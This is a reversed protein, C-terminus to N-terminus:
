SGEGEEYVTISAISASSGTTAQWQSSYNLYYKDNSSNLNYMQTGSLTFASRDGPSDLLEIINSQSKRSAYKGGNAFDFDGKSTSIATTATWELSAAETSTLTLTSGSVKGSISYAAVANNNNQLANNGHVIVYKKGSTFSTVKTYTKDTSPTPTSGGELKYLQITETSTSGFGFKSSSYQFYNNSGGSRQCNITVNGNGSFLAYYQNKNSINSDFLIDTDGYKYVYKGSTTKIEYKDGGLNSKSVTLEYAKLDNSLIKGESIAVSVKYNTQNYAFAVNASEKVFLYTGSWDSPATTVKTYTTVKSPDVVNLTFRAEGAKYDDTEACEAKITTKGEGVITVLGTSSVTAVGEASSSYTVGGTTIGSLNNTFPTDDVKKQVSPEAFALNRKAKGTASGELLYLELNTSSSSYTFKSSGYNLYYESSRDAKNKVTVTGSSITVTQAYKEDVASAFDLYPASGSKTYLYGKSTKFYFKGASPAETIEIAAKDVDASSLIKSDSPTVQQRYDSTQNADFAYYKGSGSNYAVVLYTGEVVENGTVKVYYKDPSQSNSVKLTYSVEAAQYEATGVAKATIVTSGKTLPTVAGSSADVTAVSEDSSSYSVTTKDGSLSPLDTTYASTGLDYEATNGSFALEQPKRTTFFAVKVSPKTTNIVWADSSIYAYYTSASSSYISINWFNEADNDWMTYKMDVDTAAHIGLNSTGSIRSLYKGDNTLHYAGYKLLDSSTEAVATWLMSSADELTIQDSEVSVAEAAVAGEKNALAKGESVIIYDYGPEVVSTKYYTAAVSPVIVNITYFASGENYKTGGVEGEEATATIIVTGGKTGTFTVDGTAADVTAIDEASSSYSVTTHLGTLEPKTFDGEGYTYDFETQSFELTQDVPISSDTITLTYSITTEDYNLAATATASIEVEGVAIPTVILAGDEGKAVTAIEENGSSFTVEAGGVAGLFVPSVYDDDSALDYGDAHIEKEGKYFMLPQKCIEKRTCVGEKPTMDMAINTFTGKNFTTNANLTKTYIYKDTEVVVQTVHKKGTSSIFNAYTTGSVKTNNFVMKLTKSGGTFNATRNEFDIDFYGASGTLEDDSTITVSKIYTGEINTIALRSAAAARQFSFDVNKESLSSASVFAKGILFDAAPDIWSDSQPYQVAPIFYRNDSNKQAVIGTYTYTNGLSAKTEPEVIISNYFGATLTASEYPEETEITVDEGELINGDVNNTEFLHINKADTHIWTHILKLQVGTRSINELTVDDEAHANFKMTRVEDKESQPVLVAERDCSTIGLLTILCLALLSKKNM